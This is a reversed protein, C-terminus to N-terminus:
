CGTSPLGPRHTPAATSPEPTPAPPETVLVTQDPHGLPHEVVIDPRSPHSITVTAEASYCGGTTLRAPLLGDLADGRMTLDDYTTVTPAASWDIGECTPGNQGDLPPMPGALRGSASVSLGSGDPVERGPVGRLVLRDSVDVGAEASGGRSLETEITPAVAVSTESRQPWTPAPPATVFEAPDLTEVWTYYGPGPFELASSAVEASGQADYRGSFTATGVVPRDAPAADRLEALSPFPGHLTASGSFGAGPRGGRLTVIDVAPEGAVAVVDRTRTTVSPSFHPELTSTARLEIDTTTPAVLLRQVTPETPLFVRPSSGPLGNVSAM